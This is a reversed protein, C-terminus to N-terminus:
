LATVRAVANIPTVVFPGSEAKVPDIVMSQWEVEATYGANANCGVLSLGAQHNRKNHTVGDHWTGVWLWSDRRNGATLNNWYSDAPNWFTGPDESLIVFDGAHHNDGKVPEVVDLRVVGYGLLRAGDSGTARWFLGYATYNESHVDGTDPDVYVVDGDHILGLMSGHITNVTTTAAAAGATALLCLALLATLLVTVVFRHKM